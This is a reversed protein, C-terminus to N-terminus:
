SFGKIDSDIVRAPLLLKSGSCYADDHVYALLLPAGNASHWAADKSADM